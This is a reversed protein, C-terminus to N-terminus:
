QRAALTSVMLELCRVRVKWFETKELYNRLALRIKHFGRMLKQTFRNVFLCFSLSVTTLVAAVAVLLVLLV